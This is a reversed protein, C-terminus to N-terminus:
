GKDPLLKALHDLANTALTADFANPSNADRSSFKTSTTDSRLLEAIRRAEAYHKRAEDPQNARILQFAQVCESFYAITREAYTLTKDDEALRKKIQDPLPM